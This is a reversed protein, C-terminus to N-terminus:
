PSGATVPSIDSPATAPPEAVFVWQSYATTGSLSADRPEHVHRLPEGEHRTHVGTIRGGPKVLVWDTSNTMPDRWLRRLHPVPKPFRKDQLLDDLTAPTNPSGEPSRDRYSALALRFQHGVFLLQAEKERQAATHWVQGASALSIGMAALAFLVMLYGFGQQQRRGVPPRDGSTM